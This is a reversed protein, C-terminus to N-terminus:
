QNFYLTLKKKQKEQKTNLGRTIERRYTNKIMTKLKKFHFSAASFTNIKTIIYLSTKLTYERSRLSSHVISFIQSCKFGREQNEVPFVKCGTAANCGMVSGTSSTSQLSVGILNNQHNFRKLINIYNPDSKTIEVKCASSIFCVRNYMNATLSDHFFRHLPHLGSCTTLFWVPLKM